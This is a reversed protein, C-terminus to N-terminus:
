EGVSASLWDATESVLAYEQAMAKLAQGRATTCSRNSLWLAVTLVNIGVLAALMVPRWRRWPTEALRHRETEAERIRAELRTFFFPDAKLPPEQGLALIKEVENDIREKRSM